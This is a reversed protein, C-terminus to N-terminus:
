LGPGSPKWNPNEIVVAKGQGGGICLTALGYRKNERNLVNALHGVLRAGSAGLPHGLAIAGGDVNLKDQDVDIGKNEWEKLVALSQAAFAENLEIVDVDDMTLGAKELAEISAEVPGLGMVEPAVGAEGTAIIKALVPLSNEEAYAASTMLVASAGDTIQSASAATVTGGQDASLAVPRLKGLSAMDSDERIGDDHDLGDIPVIEDTFNGNTRAAAARQHSRLSFADQEERSIEYIQALNEATIPMDMFGAVNGGHVHESLHPNLGGMPIHSMTQVGTIIYVADPNRGILGDAIAIAEMSSACFMDISTGAVANTLACEEHLVNQRAINLGQDAEQHVAGTLVKRVDAPNVGSRSLLENILPVQMDVPDIDSFHGPAKGSGPIAAKAFPTRCYAVIVATNDKTNGQENTSM